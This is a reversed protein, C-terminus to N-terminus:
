DPDLSLKDSPNKTISVYLFHGPFSLCVCGSRFTAWHFAMLGLRETIISAPLGKSTHSKTGM